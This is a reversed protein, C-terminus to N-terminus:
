NAKPFLPTCGPTDPACTPMPAPFLKVNVNANAKPFLPTCGPTDPACTPMPAPFLGIPGNVGAIAPTNLSGFVATLMLTMVAAQAIKKVSSDGLVRGKNPRFFIKDLV